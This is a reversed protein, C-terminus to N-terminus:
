DGIHMDSVVPLNDRLLLAAIERAPKDPDALAGTEHFNVFREVAPFEATSFERIKAQMATDVTSPDYSVLTVDAHPRSTAGYAETEVGFVLGARHLAAKSACYASWGPVSNQAASSSVNVVRLVGSKVHRIFYGMLWIPAVANIIMAAQLATASLEWLPGVPDLVAANNVLGVRGFGSLDVAAPFEEAFYREVAPMNGLDLLGHSYADHEIGAQRRSLGHVRWGDALLCGAVQRGIGSSTGTVLALRNTM